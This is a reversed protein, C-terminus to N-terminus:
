AAHRKTLKIPELCSFYQCHKKLSDNLFNFNQYDIEKKINRADYILLYGCRLNREKTNLLEEIYEYTQVVGDRARSDSYETSIGTGDDNISQGLWKIEIFYFYGNKEFYIDMKRKSQSLEGEVSFTSKMHDNLYQCLDDRMYHEPKNKLVNSQLNQIGAQKLISNEAFFKMYNVQKTLYQTEYEELVESFQSIDKKMTYQKHEEITYFINKDDIENGNLFRTIGFEGFFFVYNNHSERRLREKIQERNGELLEKKTCNGFENIVIFDNLHLLPQIEKKLTKEFNSFDINQVVSVPVVISFFCDHKEQADWFRQFIGRYLLRYKENTEISFKSLSVIRSVEDYSFNFDSM